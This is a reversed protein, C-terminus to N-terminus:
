NRRVYQSGVTLYETVAHSDTSKERAHEYEAKASVYPTTLSASGSKVGSIALHRTLESFSSSSSKESTIAPRAAAPLYGTPWTYLDHAATALGEGPLPIRGRRIAVNDLVATKERGSLQNYHDAADKKRLLELVSVEGIAITTGKGLLERLVIQDEQTQEVLSDGRLFHDSALMLGIHTLTNRTAKLSAGPDLEVARSQGDSRRVDILQPKDAPTGTMINSRERRAAPCHHDPLRHATRSPPRRTTAESSKRPTRGHRSFSSTCPSWRPRSGARPKSARSGESRQAARRM